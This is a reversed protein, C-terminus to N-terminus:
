LVRFRATESLTRVQFVFFPAMMQEKLMQMFAPVPVNVTNSGWKELAALAADESEYGTSTVYTELTEGDPFQVPKFVNDDTHLEFRIRRFEFETQQVQLCLMLPDAHGRL